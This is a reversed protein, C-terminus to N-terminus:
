GKIIDFYNIICVEIYAPQNFCKGYQYYMYAIGASGTYVSCDDNYTWNHKKEKLEDLLRKTHM